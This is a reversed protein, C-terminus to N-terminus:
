GTKGSVQVSVEQAEDPAALVWERWRRVDLSPRPLRIQLKVGPESVNRAYNTEVALSADLRSLVINRRAERTSQAIQVYVPYNAARGPATPTRIPNGPAAMDLLKRHLEPVSVGHTALNPADLMLALTLTFSASPNGTIGPGLLEFSGPGEIHSSYAHQAFPSDNLMLVDARGLGLAKTVVRAPVGPKDKRGYWMLETTNYNAGASPEIPTTSVFDAQGGYWFILLNDPGGYEQVFHKIKATLADQPVDVSPVMWVQAQIGYRRDLVAALQYAAPFFPGQRANQAITSSSNRVHFRSESSSRIPYNANSESSVSSVRSRGFPPLPPYPDATTSADTSENESWCVLLARASRYRSHHRRPWADEIAIQLAAVHNKLDEETLNYRRHPRTYVRPSANLSGEQTESPSESPKSGKARSFSEKIFRTFSSSRNGPPASEPQQPNGPQM